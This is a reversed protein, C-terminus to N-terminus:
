KKNKLEELFEVYLKKYSEDSFIAKEGLPFPGKLVDQAYLYSFHSDTAIATEGLPFPGKLVYAAYTYAYRANKAIYSEGEPFPAHIIYEAYECAYKPSKTIYKLRKRLENINYKYKDWFISPVTEQAKEYGDLEKPNNFYKYINM